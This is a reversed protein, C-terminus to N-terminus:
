PMQKSKRPISSKGRAFPLYREASALVTTQIGPPQEDPRMELLYGGAILVTGDLLLTMSPRGRPTRLSAASSWTMSDPEFRVNMTRMGYHLEPSAGIQFTGGAVLIEGGPLTTAAHDYREAPLDAVRSWIRTAPDFMVALAHVTDRGTNGGGNGGAVLVRGDALLTATHMVSGAGTEGVNSWTRSHPDFLEAGSLANEFDESNSGRVALVTGDDLRTLTHGWRTTGLDATPVWRGTAPDYLEASRLTEGAGAGGYGGAVLVRGDQLETADYWFRATIMTGTPTWTRTAPDYIEATDTRGSSLNTLGGAVLVRGDSLRTATHMARSMTMSGTPSWTGVVPDYLEASDLPTFRADRGGAALVTGDALLTATHFERASGMSGTVVSQPEVCEERCPLIFHNAIAADLAVMACFATIPALRCANRSSRTM